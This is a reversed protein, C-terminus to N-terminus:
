CQKLSMLTLKLGLADLCYGQKTRDGASVRGAPRIHIQCDPCAGAEGGAPEIMETPKFREALTQRGQKM